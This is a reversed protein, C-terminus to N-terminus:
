FKNNNGNDYEDGDNGGRIPTFRKGVIYGNESHDEQAEADM